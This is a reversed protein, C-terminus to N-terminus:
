GEADHVEVLYGVADPTEDWTLSLSGDENAEVALNEVVGDYVDVVEATEAETEAITEPQTEPEETNNECATMCGAILIASAVVAIGKVFCKMTDKRM